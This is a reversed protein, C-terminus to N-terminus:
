IHPPPSYLHCLGPCPSSCSPLARGEGTWGLREDRQPCDSPNGMLNSAQGWQIAHQLQNLVKASSPFSVNGVTEVATRYNLGTVLGVLPPTGVLGSVSVFRFGHWTFLPEFTEGTESGATTYVDTAEASRLNGYYLSGDKPGYPM